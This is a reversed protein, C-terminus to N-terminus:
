GILLLVPDLDRAAELIAKGPDRGERVEVRVTVGACQEPAVLWEPRTGDPTVCLLTVGAQQAHAMACGLTLLRPPYGFGFEDVRIGARKATLFHGLEHLLILVSLVVVFALVTVISM